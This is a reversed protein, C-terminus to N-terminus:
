TLLMEHQKIPIKNKSCPAPQGGFYSSLRATRYQCGTKIKYNRHSGNCVLLKGLLPPIGFSNNHLFYLNRYSQYNIDNPERPLCKKGSFYNLVVGFQLSSHNYMYTFKFQPILNMAGCNLKFFLLYRSKKQQLYFSHRCRTIQKRRHTSCNM